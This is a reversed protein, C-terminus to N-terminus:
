MYDSIGYFWAILLKFGTGTGKSIPIMSDKESNGFQDGFNIRNYLTSCYTWLKRLQATREEQIKRDALIRCILERSISVCAFKHINKFGSLVDRMAALASSAQTYKSRLDVLQESDAVDTNRKLRREFDKRMLEKSLEMTDYHVQSQRALAKLLQDEYHLRM